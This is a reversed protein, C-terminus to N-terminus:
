HKGYATGCTRLREDLQAKSISGNDYAQKAMYKCVPTAVIQPHSLTYFGGFILLCGPLLGVFVRLVKKSAM